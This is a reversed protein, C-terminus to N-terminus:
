AAKEEAGNKHLKPVIPVVSADNSAFVFGYGVREAEDLRLQLEEHLHSYLESMTQPAHAMWFNNIDELCRSGRLWTKRFRKFSHWGMGKEDLGMKVLRPTLWRDALNGYLHPTGNATHFLLGTKGASYKRLYEAIDPHLDIQREAADTKLHRVIRPANKEVQQEVTITRGQNMFHRTELALAESVRMGTAALLVYLAQEQGASEQILESITGGKISPRKQEAQEVPPLDMTEADWVRKHVPEGNKGRLSEVIQKVHEIYKNVTRPSLGSSSMKDILPRVSLNDVDSLPLDGIAPNIWKDLAGQITVAYSQGIPKRKRNQSQELWVESQECFTVGGPNLKVVENFREPSDAGSQQIIERAKRKRESKSLLGPGSSPCIRERAHVRQEQNAIDKWFRVVYWRGSKEIHGDQGTRRSLSKGRKRKAPTAVPVIDNVSRPPFCILSASMGGRKTPNHVVFVSQSNESSGM